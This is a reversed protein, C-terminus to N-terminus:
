FNHPYKKHLVEVWLEAQLFRVRRCLELDLRRSLLSGIDRMKRIWWSCKWYAELDWVM